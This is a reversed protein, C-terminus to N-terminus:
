AAGGPAPPHLVRDVLALLDSTRFPKKLIVTDIQSALALDVDGDDTILIAPATIGEARASRLCDTGARKALDCELLLLCVRSGERRTEELFRPGDPSERVEYGAARLAAAAIQRVYEHSEGLVICEGKGRAGGTDAPRGPAQGPPALPLHVTCVTTGDELAALELDGGHQGVIWRVHRLGEPEAPRRRRSAAAGSATEDGPRSVSVAIQASPVEPAGAGSAARPAALSAAVAVRTGRRRPEALVLALSLTALLLAAADGRVPLPPGSPEDRAVEVAHPLIRRLLRSADVALGRVDLELQEQLPLAGMGVLLRTESSAQHAAKEIMDLARLAPHGEALTSRAHATFGYIVTLVNNLDHAVGAALRGVALYHERADPVPESGRSAGGRPPKSSPTM